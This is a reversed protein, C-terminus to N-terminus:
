NIETVKLVTDLRVERGDKLILYEGGDHIRFDTIVGELSHDSDSVEILVKSNHMALLELQSHLDCSIPQYKTM